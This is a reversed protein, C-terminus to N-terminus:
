ETRRILTIITKILATLSGAVLHTGTLSSNHHTGDVLALQGGGAAETLGEQEEEQEVEEGGVWRWGLRETSPPQLRRRGRLDVKTPAVLHPVSAADCAM